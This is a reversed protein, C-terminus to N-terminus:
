PLRLWVAADRPLAGDVLPASALLVEAGAPLAVPEPSLNAVCAFGGSRAFALVDPEADLWTMPADGLGAEQRRLHLARRYFELM